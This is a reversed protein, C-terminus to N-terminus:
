WVIRKKTREYGWLCFLARCFPGPGFVLWRDFKFTGRKFGSLRAMCNQRLSYILGVFPTM